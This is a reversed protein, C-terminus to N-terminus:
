ETSYHEALYYVTLYANPIHSQKLIKKSNGQTDYMPDHIINYTDEDYYSRWEYDIRNVIIRYINERYDEERLEMTAPFIDRTLKQLKRYIQEEFPTSPSKLTYLYHLPLKPMYVTSPYKSTDIERQLPYKYSKIGYEKFDGSYLVSKHYMTGRNDTIPFALRLKETKLLRAMHKCWKIKEQDNLHSEIRRIKIELKEQTSKLASIKASTQKLQERCEALYEATYLEDNESESASTSTVTSSM